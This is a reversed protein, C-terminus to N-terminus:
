QQRASAALCRSVIHGKFICCANQLEHDDRVLIEIVENAETEILLLLEVDNPRVISATRQM